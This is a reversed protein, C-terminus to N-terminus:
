NKFNPILESQGTKYLLTYIEKWIRIRDKNSLSVVIKAQKDNSITKFGTKIQNQLRKLASLQRYRIKSSKTVKLKNFNINSLAQKQPNFKVGDKIKSKM